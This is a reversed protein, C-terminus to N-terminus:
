VLLFSIVSTQSFCLVIFSRFIITLYRKLYGHSIYCFFTMDCVFVVYFDSLSFNDSIFNGKKGKVATSYKVPHLFIIQNKILSYSFQFVLDCMITFMVLHQVQM